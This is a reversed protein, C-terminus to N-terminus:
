DRWIDEHSREEKQLIRHVLYVCGKHFQFIIEGAHGNECFYQITTKVGRMDNFSQRVLTGEKTIITKDTQRLCKLATIHVYDFGCIPCALKWPYEGGYWERTQQIM